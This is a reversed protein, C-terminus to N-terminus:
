QALDATPLVALGNFPGSSKAVCSWLCGQGPLFSLSPCPLPSPPCHPLHAFPSGGNLGPTFSLRPSPALTTLSIALIPSASHTGGSPFCGVSLPPPPYLHPPCPAPLLSLHLVQGPGWPICCFLSAPLWPPERRRLFAPPPLTLSPHLLHCPYQSHGTVGTGSKEVRREQILGADGGGPPSGQPRTRSLDGAVGRQELSLWVCRWTGVAHVWVWSQTDRQTDLSRVLESCM